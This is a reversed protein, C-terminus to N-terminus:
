QLLIQNSIYKSHLRFRRSIISFYTYTHQLNFLLNSIICDSRTTVFFFFESNDLLSIFMSRRHQILSWYELISHKSITPMGFSIDISIDISHWYYHINHGLLLFSWLMPLTWLKQIAVSDILGKLLLVHWHSQTHNRSYLNIAMINVHVNYPTEKTSTNNREQVSRLKNVKKM